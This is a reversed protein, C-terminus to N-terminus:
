LISLHANHAKHAQFLANQAVNAEFTHLFQFGTVNMASANNIASVSQVSAAQFNTSSLQCVIDAQVILYITSSHYLAYQTLLAKVTCLHHIGANNTHSCYALESVANIYSTLLHVDDQNCNNDLAILV